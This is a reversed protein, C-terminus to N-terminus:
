SILDQCYNLNVKDARQSDPNKGKNLLRPRRLFHFAHSRSLLIFTPHCGAGCNLIHAFCLLGPQNVRFFLLVEATIICKSIMM